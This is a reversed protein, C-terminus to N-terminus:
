NHHGFGEDEVPLFFGFAEGGGKADEVVGADVAELGGIMEGVVVQDDGGVAGEAAVGGEELIDIEVVDDEVFGLGDFVGLAFGGFGDAEDFAAMAEGEGASGDLIMEAVEPGEEIKEVGAHEAVGADEGAGVAGEAVGILGHADHEGAGEAGEDEAAGLFLDGGIERGFVLLGEVALEFGRLALEVVVEAGAIALFQQLLDVALAEGTGFDLDEFGEEAEALGGQVGAEDVARAEGFGAGFEVQQDGAEFFDDVFAVFGQDEGLEGAHEGDDAGGEVGFADDVFIEIAFGAVALLADLMELGVGGAGEEEDGEFGAAEAEVEGGGVVDVEEVGPPVGGDFGLGDVAGVADALVFGDVGAADDGLVGDFFFDEAELM